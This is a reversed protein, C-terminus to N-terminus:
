NKLKGIEIYRICHKAGDTTRAAVCVKVCEIKASPKCAFALSPVLCSGFVVVAVISNIIAAKM